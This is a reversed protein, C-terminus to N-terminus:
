FRSWLEKSKKLNGPNRKYDSGPNAQDIWIHGSKLVSSSTTRIEQQTNAKRGAGM